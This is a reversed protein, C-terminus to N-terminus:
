AFLVRLEGSTVGALGEVVRHAAALKPAPYSHTVAVVKMGAALAATVGAMSDEFVLCEEPRLGPARPALRAMATLYPEPHPKGRSVDDAGVITAFADRLGGAVLVREIEGRLAGSAIGLPLERGLERVLERVGPFFPVDGLLADFAAAKRRAIADIRAADYGFGHRELAIRIAERDDYALYTRVYEAEDIAIKEPALADRLARFHLPESNVLVGDFDFLVARMLIGAEHARQEQLEGGSEDQQDEQKSEETEGHSEAEVLQESLLGAESVFGTAV